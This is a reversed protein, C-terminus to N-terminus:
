SLKIHYKMLKKRAEFSETTSSDFENGDLVYDIWMLAFEEIRPVELEKIKLDDEYYADIFKQM